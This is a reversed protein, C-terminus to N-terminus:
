GKTGSSYQSGSFLIGYKQSMELMRKVAIRGWQAFDSVLNNLDGDELM